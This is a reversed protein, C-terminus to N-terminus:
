VLLQGAQPQARSLPAHDALFQTADSAKLPQSFLYGQVEQCNLNKLIELQQSTEVGEAIVRLNFGNGLTLIASIIANEQSTGRLDRILAQSIKLTRFKFYQLYGMSSFGKGFDDLSIRLGLNHCDQFIQPAKKLNQRLTKETIELELWQPDLGTRELIQAVLTVLNSQQFERNSLNVTMPIPPLGSEQWIRNQECAKQLVWKGICNVLNTKEALPIFKTPPIFGLQPMEWRLLAEMGTVEGTDLKVQPQYHLAFERRDLARNLASEIKLLQIAEESMIPSYFEYNNHGKEQTRSLALDANKLLLEEHDGDQPYIAIGISVNVQINKNAIIFPEKLDEFIRQSLKVTDDTNRIRPLLITFKDGEWRAITDGARVCSILRQGFMELLQDGISHGFSNNINQFSDLDLFMVALLTQNKEANSLAISLKKNFLQRNPLNTLSDHFAQYQMKEESRKRESIDRIAFCYVDNGRYNNYSIKEEISVLSGDKCRYLSEEILCSKNTAVQQLEGDIIERELAIIDYINLNIIEEYEYGLIQCFGLNADVINKSNSDVLYIGESSQKVLFEYRETNQNLKAENQKYKSIDFVYIRIVKNEPIYSIHQEYFDSGIQVERIFSTGEQQLSPNILDELIKHESKTARLDPFKMRAAPNIYTIEGEFNVEIIPNPSFEALSSSDGGIDTTKAEASEASILTNSEQNSLKQPQKNEPKPIDELNPTPLIGSTDSSKLLDMESSTSIIHYSAKSGSGFRILDGHKLEHSLTYKGNIILGNTSKKGQLSGDIIRYTSNNDQYDTIKLLTAHHRSVQRDYLIISGNPDRGITYTNERLSVIRKSKQDEIVLIHRVDQANNM